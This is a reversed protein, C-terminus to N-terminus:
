LFIVTSESCVSIKTITKSIYLVRSSISKNIIKLSRKSLMKFNNENNRFAYKHQNKSKFAIFTNEGLWPLM